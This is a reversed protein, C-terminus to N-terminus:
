GGDRRRQGEQACADKEKWGRQEEIGGGDRMKRGGPMTHVVMRKRIRKQTTREMARPPRPRDDRAPTRVRMGSSRPTRTFLQRLTLVDDPM